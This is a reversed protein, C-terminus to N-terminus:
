TLRAVSDREILRMPLIELRDQSNERGAIIKKLRHLMAAGIETRPNHLTTIPPNCFKAAPSNDFGFISVHRPVSLDMGALALVTLHAIDDNSCFFVSPWHQPDWPGLESLLAQRASEQTTTKEIWVIRDLKAPEALLNSAAVCENLRPRHDSRGIFGFRKHGHAQLYQWAM